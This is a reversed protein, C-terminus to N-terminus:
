MAPSLVDGVSASRTTVSAWAKIRSLSRSQCLASFAGSLVKTVRTSTTGGLVGAGLRARAVFSPRRANM